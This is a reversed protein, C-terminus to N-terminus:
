KRLIISVSRIGLSCEDTALLLELGEFVFAECVEVGCPASRVKLSDDYDSVHIYVLDLVLDLSDEAINWSCLIRLRLYEM